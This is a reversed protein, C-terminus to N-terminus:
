PQSEEASTPKKFSGSSLALFVEVGNRRLRVGSLEIDVVRGGAARDGIEVPRGDIVAVRREGSVWVSHLRPPIVAPRGRPPPPLLAPRTPDALEARATSALLLAFAAIIVVAERM